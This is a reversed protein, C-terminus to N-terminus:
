DGVLTPSLSHSIPLRFVRAEFRLLLKTWRLGLAHGHAPPPALQALQALQMM